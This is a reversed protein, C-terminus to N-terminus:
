EVQAQEVLAREILPLYHHFPPVSLGAIKAGDDWRRLRTADSSYQTREFELVEPPTMPGGQLSLSLLSATSLTSTYDPEIALLYRKAAVHMRVPSIVREHFYWRMWRTGVLEHQLDIWTPAGNDSEIDLLHGIDHLLAAVVLDNSAEDRQALHATQLAHELLSVPEGVYASGGVSDYLRVITDIVNM